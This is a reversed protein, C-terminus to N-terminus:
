VKMRAAYALWEVALLAIAALVCWDWVQRGVSGASGAAIARGGISLERRTLLSSETADLLSVGLSESGAIPPITRYVGVRAVVGFGASAGSDGVRTTASLTEPGQLSVSTVAAPVRILLPRSTTAQDNLDAARATLTDVAAALFVPFSVQLPWDSEAPAFAVLIDRADDREALAILPGDNGTALETLKARLIEGGWRIVRPRAIFVSDLSVDRLIPSTRRWSLVYSGKASPESLTVGPIPPSANFSLTAVRPLTRPSVADFVLLDAASLGREASRTEYESRTMTTLTVGPLEALADALVWGSAGSDLRLEDPAVLVIRPPQARPLSLWSANDADLADPRDISLSLLGAASTAIEFSAIAEGPTSTPPAGDVGPTIAAGPVELARRALPQENLRLVLPVSVASGGANVLRAVLRVTRPDAYERRGAFAVIGTNDPTTDAGVSVFSFAANGLKARPESFGGDSVLAVLPPADSEPTDLTLAEAARLAAALDAPQDTPTVADIMARLQSASGSAPSLLVPEKAFAILSVSAGDQDIADTAIRIAAEKALDFRTPSPDRSTRGTPAPGGPPAVTDPPLSSSAQSSSAGERANMSASRDLLIIVRRSGSSAGSLAPRGIALVLLSAILLHLVLLWSRRLWRLPVNAQLDESAANWFLTTSVRVPRRRLKLLYLALVAPLAIAGAVLAATPALLTM